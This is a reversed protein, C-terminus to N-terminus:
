SDYPNFILSVQQRLPKLIQHRVFSRAPLCENTFSLFVCRDDLAAKKWGRLSVNEKQLKLLLDQQSAITQEVQQLQSDQDKTVAATEAEWRVLKNVEDSLSSHLDKLNDGSKDM